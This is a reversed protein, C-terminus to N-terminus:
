SSQQKTEQGSICDYQNSQQKTEQGSICYYQSSQQKTEQGSIGITKGVCRAEPHWQGTECAYQSRWSGHRCEQVPMQVCSKSTWVTLTNKVASCLLTHPPPPPPLSPPNHTHTNTHMGNHPTHTHTHTSEHNQRCTYTEHKTIMDMTKSHHPPRHGWTETTQLGTQRPWWAPVSLWGSEVGLSRNGAPLWGRWRGCVARSHGRHPPDQMSIVLWM